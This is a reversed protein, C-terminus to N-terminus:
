ARDRRGWATYWVVGPEFAEPDRLIEIGADIDTDPPVRERVAEITLRLLEAEPTAGQVVDATASAEIDSLGAAHLAAPLAVAWAYDANPMAHHLAEFTAVWAPTRSALMAGLYPEEALLVGGPRLAAAMRRLAPVEEGRLHHLLARCHVLDYTDGELAAELINGQRAEVGPENEIFRIDLDLAVVRGGPSVRDRLWRAISGGGAGVELCQWGARVGLEALRSTTPPDYCREILALRRREDSWSPDFGYGQMLAITTAGEMVTAVVDRAPLARRSVGSAFM